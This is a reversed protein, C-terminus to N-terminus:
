REDHEDIIKADEVNPDLEDRFARESEVWVDAARDLTKDVLNAALRVATGGLYVTRGLWNLEYFPTGRKDSDSM